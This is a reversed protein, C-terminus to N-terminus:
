WNCMFSNFSNIILIWIHRFTEHSDFFLVIVLLQTLKLTKFLQTAIIFKLSGERFEYIEKKFFLTFTELLINLFHFTAILSSLHRCLCWFQCIVVTESTIFCGMGYSVLPFDPWFVGWFLHLVLKADEEHHVNTLQICVAFFIYKLHKKQM